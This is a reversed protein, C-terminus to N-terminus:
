AATTAAAARSGAQTRWLLVAAVVIWGWYVFVPVFFIAFLQIIGVLVGLWAFWRPLLGTRLAVASTPWVVLAGVIVASIWFEYGMDSTLRFTNPDLHFKSTDDAAFAPGTFFVVACLWLVASAVGSGWALAGLRGAGGEAAVMRARLTSFFVLLFLVGAVFVLLAIQQRTHHSHFYGAIKADSDTTSPSGSAIAFAIVMGIVGLVGALPSWREWHVKM